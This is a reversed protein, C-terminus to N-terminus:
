LVRNQSRTGWECVPISVIKETAERISRDLESEKNRVTIKINVVEQRDSECQHQLAVLKDREMETQRAMDQAIKVAVDIESRDGQSQQLAPKFRAMTEIKVREHQISHREADILDM